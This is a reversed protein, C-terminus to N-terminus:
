RVVHKSTNPAFSSLEQKVKSSKCKPCNFKKAEYDALTVTVEFSENCKECRYQYTPM